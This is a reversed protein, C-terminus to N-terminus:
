TGMLSMTKYSVREVGDIVVGIKVSFITLDTLLIASVPTIIYRGNGDATIGSQSLGVVATGAADYVTYNATGIGTTRVLGDATAWLAGIFQNSSNIAFGGHAKYSPIKSNLPLLISRVTGDVTVSIKVTYGLQNAPILSAVNTITFIGAGNPSLGSESMGVVPSGSPSYVQYSGTGLDSTVIVEDEMVWFSGDFDNNGDVFFNGLIQYDEDERVIPIYNARNSGDVMITVKVTYHDLANVMLNAVASTIYQGNVDATIGSGSMGVVAAGAKDYVQFSATGLVANLNTAIVSNKIAWLTGRFQNSSDISFVGDTTYTESSVYVGTSIVNLIVVNGDRNNVGDIARVGVYYTTGNVLFSGDPLTFTSFQLKDTIAIINQATFLGTNVDPQIYVEYRVPATADTGAAWTAIIQGRSGITLTSIGAFTPPTLDVICASSSGQYVMGFIFQDSFTTPASSSQYVQSQTFIDAM